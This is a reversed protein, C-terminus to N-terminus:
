DGQTGGVELLGKWGRLLLAQEPEGGKRWGGIDAGGAGKGWTRITPLGHLPLDVRRLERWEFYEGGRCGIETM